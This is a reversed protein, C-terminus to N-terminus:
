FCIWQKAFLKQIYSPNNLKYANSIVIGVDKDKFAELQKRIQKSVLMM